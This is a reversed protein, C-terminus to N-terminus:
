LYIRSKRTYVQDTLTDEMVKEYKLIDRKKM